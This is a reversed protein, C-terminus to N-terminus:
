LRKSQDLIKEALRGIRATVTKQLSLYRTRKETIRRDKGYVLYEVTVGLAAAMGCASDVDPIRNNYIWNRFTGYPVGIKVAIKEQSTKNAKILAKTRKWFQIVDM